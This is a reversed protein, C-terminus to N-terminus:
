SHNTNYDSVAQAIADHADDSFPQFARLPALNWVTPTKTTGGRYKEDDSMMDYLTQAMSPTAPRRKGGKEAYILPTKPATTEPM